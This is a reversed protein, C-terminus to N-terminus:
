CDSAAVSFRRFGADDTLKPRIGGNLELGKEAAMNSLTAVVDDVVERIRAPAKSIKMQGAEIKGQDLMNNILTMLHHSNKEIVKTYQGQGSEGHESEGILRNFGMIAALPTRLEHTMHSIFQSKLKYSEEAPLNKTFCASANTTFGGYADCWFFYSPWIIRCAASIGISDIAEAFVALVFRRRDALPLLIFGVAYNLPSRNERERFSAIPIFLALALLM